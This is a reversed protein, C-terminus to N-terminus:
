KIKKTWSAPLTDGESLDGKKATPEIHRRVSHRSVNFLQTISVKDLEHQDRWLYHRDVIIDQVSVLLEKLLTSGLGSSAEGFERLICRIDEEIDEM